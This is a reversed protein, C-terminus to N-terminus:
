GVTINFLIRRRRASPMGGLEVGEVRGGSLEPLDWVGAVYSGEGRLGHGILAEDEGPECLM